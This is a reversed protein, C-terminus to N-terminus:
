FLLIVVEVEFFCSKQKLFTDMDDRMGSSLWKSGMGQRARLILFVQWKEKASDLCGGSLSM